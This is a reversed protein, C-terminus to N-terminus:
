ARKGAGRLSGALLLPVVVGADNVVGGLVGWVAAALVGFHVEPSGRLAARLGQGSRARLAVAIAALGFGVMAVYDSRHWSALNAAVKRDITVRAGTHGVEGAFRGIHGGGLAADYGVVAAAALVAVVGLLVWVRPGIRVGRVLLLLLAVAPTLALVGGLDDGWFPAGDLAIAIVGVGVVAVTAWRRGPRAAALLGAGLLAATAFVAFATNGAGHFRGAVTTSDGLLGDLQLHTGSVLDTGLVVATVGAVVALGGWPPRRQGFLYAAAAIVVAIGAILGATAQFPWRWWPGVQVLYSSVPLVATLYCLPEAIVSAAAGARRRGVLLAVM